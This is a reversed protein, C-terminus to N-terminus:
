RGDSSSAAGPAPESTAELAKKHAEREQFVTLRLVINGDPDLFAHQFFITIDKEQRSMMFPLLRKEGRLAVIDGPHFSRDLSKGTQRDTTEIQFGHATVDAVLTVSRDITQVTSGDWALEYRVPSKPSANIELVVKRDPELQVVTVAAGPRQASCSALCLGAMLVVAIMKM